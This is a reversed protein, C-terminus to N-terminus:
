SNLVVISFQELFLVMTQHFLLRATTSQRINEASSLFLLHYKVAYTRLCKLSSPGLVRLPLFLCDTRVCISIHWEFCHDFLRGHVKKGRRRRVSMKSVIIALPNANAYVHCTARTGCHLLSCRCTDHTMLARHSYWGHFWRSRQVYHIDPRSRGDAMQTEIDDLSNEFTFFYYSFIVSHCMM